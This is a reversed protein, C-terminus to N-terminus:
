NKLRILIAIALLILLIGVVILFINLINSLNLSADGINGTKVTASPTTITSNNNINSNNVTSDTNNYSTNEADNNSVNSSNSYNNETNYSEDETLNLDVASVFKINIIITLIIFFVSIIKELKTM